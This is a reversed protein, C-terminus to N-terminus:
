VWIEKVNVKECDIGSWKEMYAEFSPSDHDFEDYIYFWDKIQEETIDAPFKWMEFHAGMFQILQYETM